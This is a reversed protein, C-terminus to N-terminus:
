SQMVLLLAHQYSQATCQMEQVGLDYSSYIQRFLKYMTCLRPKNKPNKKPPPTRTYKFPTRLYTLHLRPNTTEKMKKRFVKTPIEKLKM